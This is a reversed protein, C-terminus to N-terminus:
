CAIELAVVVVFVRCVLILGALRGGGDSYLARASLREWRLSRCTYHAFIFVSIAFYQFRLFLQQGQIIHAKYRCTAVPGLPSSCSHVKASSLQCSFNGRGM